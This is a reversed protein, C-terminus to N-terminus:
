EFHRQLKWGWDDTYTAAFIRIVCHVVLQAIGLRPSLDLAQETKLKLRSCLCHSTLFDELAIHGIKEVLEVVRITFCGEVLNIAM